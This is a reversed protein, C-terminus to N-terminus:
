IAWPNLYAGNASFTSEVPQVGQSRVSLEPAQRQLSDAGLFPTRGILRLVAAPARCAPSWGESLSKGPAPVAKAAALADTVVNELVTIYELFRLRGEDTIRRVTLPRNQCFGKCIVVFESEHLVQLHRSLNGDTLARLEKLDSFVLGKPHTVLSTMIGHRAKEHFVRELGDYAFRGSSDDGKTRTM